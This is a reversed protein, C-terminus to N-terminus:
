YRTGSNIKAWEQVWYIYIKSSGLKVQRSQTKGERAPINKKKKFQGLIDNSLVQLRQLSLLLKQNKKGKM